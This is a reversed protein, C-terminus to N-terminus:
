KGTCQRLVWSNVGTRIVGEANNGFMSGLVASAASKGGFKYILAALGDYVVMRAAEGAWNAMTICHTDSGHGGEGHGGEGGDSGRVTALDNIPITTLGDYANSSM